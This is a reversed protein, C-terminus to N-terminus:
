QGHHGEGALGALGGTGSGSLVSWQAYLKEQFAGERELEVRGQIRQEVSSLLSMRSCM